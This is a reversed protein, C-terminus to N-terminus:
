PRLPRLRVDVTGRPRVEVTEGDARVRWVRDICEPTRDVPSQSALVYYSGPALAGSDYRGFQDTRGCVIDAALDSRSRVGTPITCVDAESVSEM